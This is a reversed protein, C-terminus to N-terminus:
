PAPPRRFPPAESPQRSTARVSRAADGLSAASWALLAPFAITVAFRAPVPLGMISGLMAGLRGINGSAINWALLAAWATAAGAATIGPGCRMAGAVFAVLPVTWWGADADSVEGSM